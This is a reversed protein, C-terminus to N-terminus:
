ISTYQYHGNIRIEDVGFVITQEYAKMGNPDRLRPNYVGKGTSQTTPSPDTTSFETQYAIPQGFELRLLIQGQRPRGWELYGGHHCGQVSSNIQYSQQEYRDNPLPPSSTYFAESSPM